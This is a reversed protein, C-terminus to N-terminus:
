RGKPDLVHLTFSELFHDAAPVVSLEDSYTVNVQYQRRQVWFVRSKQIYTENGITKEVTIERGKIPGLQIPKESVLKAGLGFLMLERGADLREDETGQFLEPPYETIAIICATVGHTASYSHIILKDPALMAPKQEEAPPSPFSASFAWRESDYKVWGCEELALKKNVRWLAKEAEFRVQLEPHKRLGALDPSAAMGNPGLNGIAIIANLLVDLDEDTLMERLAPMVSANQMRALRGLLVVAARRVIPDSDGACARLVPVGSPRFKFTANTEDSFKGADGERKLIERWYCTPRWNHFDDGCLFGVLIRNPDFFSAVSLSIVVFVVAAGSWLLFRRMADVQM